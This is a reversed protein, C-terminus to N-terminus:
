KAYRWEFGGCSNYGKVLCNSLANQTINNKECAELISNYASIIEGKYEKIIIKKQISSNVLMSVDGIKKLPIRKPGLERFQRNSVQNQKNNFYGILGNLPIKLIDALETYTEVEFVELLHGELDYM